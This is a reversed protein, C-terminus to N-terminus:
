FAVEYNLSAITKELETESVIKRLLSIQPGALRFFMLVQWLYMNLASIFDCEFIM